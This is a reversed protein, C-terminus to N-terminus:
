EHLVCVCHDYPRANMESKGQPSIIFVLIITYTLGICICLYAHYADILFHLDIDDIMNPINKWSLFWQKEGAM